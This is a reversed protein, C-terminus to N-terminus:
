LGEKSYIAGLVYSCLEVGADSGKTYYEIAKDTSQSVGQGLVFGVGMRYTARLDGGQEALLYHKFAEEDSQPVGHGDHYSRGLEYHAWAKGASIRGRLQSVREEDTGPPERCNPCNNNNTPKNMADVVRAKGFWGPGCVYCIEYGCCSLSFMYVVSVDVFCTRCETTRQDVM